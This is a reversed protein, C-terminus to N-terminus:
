LTTLHKTGEVLNVELSKVKVTTGTALRNKLLRVMLASNLMKANEGDGLTGERVAGAVSAGNDGLVGAM